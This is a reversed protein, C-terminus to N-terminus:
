SGLSRAVIEHMINLPVAGNGLVVDHFERIDFHEGLRQETEDRLRRIERQGIKYALAQGGRGIYRDVENEINNEAQPSNERLYDVARQRSWGLAHMGTDVVLRCARWSDFSLMGLRELDGSYLGMEDSLRETYLAWGEQFATVRAFRRFDPVDTLEQAIAIQTHHGPVAEHFALAESEFRTRTEPAWTNVYYRGPRSGDGAPPGYYAITTHEVEYPAMERVECPTSPLRGFWGPVSEEARRLAREAHAFVEESTTFRLAEDNRLRDFIADLDATGLVGAALERYEDRLAAVAELGIDHIERASLATTTHRRVASAYVEEGDPLWVLGCRESPRAHPAVERALVERYRQLAPLVAETVGAALQDRWASAEADSWTAPTEPALFPSEDVALGLVADLQDLAQEVARRTPTRDRAVGARHREALHDFWSPVARYRAVLAQAQEPTDLTVKQTFDLLHRVEGWTPSVDFEVLRSTLEEILAEISFALCALTVRDHPDLGADEIQRTRGLLDRLHELRDEDGDESPDPVAEDRDREGILTAGVPDADLLSQWYADAIADLETDM